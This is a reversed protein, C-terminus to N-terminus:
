VGTLLVDIAGIVRHSDHTLTGVVRGLARKPIAAALPTVMVLREGGISFRPRLRVDTEPADVASVLPVVLRTDLDALLDAQCDVVLGGGQVLEHVDFQM